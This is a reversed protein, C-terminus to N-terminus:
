NPNTKIKEVLSLITNVVTDPNTFQIYHRGDKLVSLESNTSIALLGKQMDRWYQIHMNELDDNWGPPGGSPGRMSGSASLIRVPLSDLNLDAMTLGHNIVGEKHEPYICYNMTQPFFSTLTVAISDTNQGDVPEPLQLADKPMLLRLLGIRAIVNVLDINGSANMLVERVEVPMEHFANPHAADILVLANVHDRFMAAYKMMNLGGQSHGVLILPGSIDLQKIVQNLEKSIEEPTRKYESQESWNCGARDYLLVKAQQALQNEIPLYAFSGLEGAGADMIITVDGKGILRTHISHSGINIMRGPALYKSKISARVSNEYIFGVTVVITLLSAIGIILRLTWKLIKHKM